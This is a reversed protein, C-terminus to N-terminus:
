VAVIEAALLTCRPMRWALMKEDGAFPEMEFVGKAM